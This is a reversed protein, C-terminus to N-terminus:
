MTPTARSWVEDSAHTDGNDLVVELDELESPPLSDTPNDDGGDSSERTAGASQEDGDHMPTRAGHQDAKRVGRVKTTPFFDVILQWLGSIGSSIAGAV